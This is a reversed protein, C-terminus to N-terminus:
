PEITIRPPTSKIILSTGRYALLDNKELIRLVLLHHGNITGV